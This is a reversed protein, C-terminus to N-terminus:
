TVAALISTLEQLAAEPGYLTCVATVNLVVEDVGAKDFDGLLDAMESLDASLFAGGAVAARADALLDDGGVPIGSRRLMAQYHPLRLHAGNGALAFEAGDRDPRRLAVPVMAVLRPRDRHAAAAGENVAPALVDRIYDAPTLWTIGVDAVEGALHAMRPRLVGLGVEVPPAPLEPLRAACRFYEGAFAPQRGDLLSRMITLYERGAQLPSAYPAGLLARQLPRSGPGYGAVLPRDTAAAVSRAQLAAQWPHQLPMLSVGTGVPTRLGAAAAAVFQHHSDIYLSQGQWLREAAGFRVLGAFPLVHEPRQPVFPLLVSFKM